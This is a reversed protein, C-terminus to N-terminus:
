TEDAVNAVLVEAQRQHGQYTATVRATYFAGKTTLASPGIVKEYTGDGQDQMAQEAVVTDGDLLIELNVTAGTVADGNEDTLTAVYKGSSQYYHVEASM